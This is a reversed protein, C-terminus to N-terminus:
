RTTGRLRGLKDAITDDLDRLSSALAQAQTIAADRHASAVLYGSVLGPNNKAYGLGFVGDIEDIARLMSQATDADAQNFIKDRVTAM